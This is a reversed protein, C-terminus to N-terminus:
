TNHAGPPETLLRRGVGLGPREEKEERRHPLTVGGLDRSDGAETVKPILICWFPFIFRCRPVRLTRLRRQPFLTPGGGFHSLVWSAISCQETLGKHRVSFTVDCDNEMTQSNKLYQQSKPLITQLHPEEQHKLHYITESNSCHQCERLPGINAETPPLSQDERLDEM